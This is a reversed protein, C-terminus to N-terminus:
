QLPSAKSHDLNKATTMLEKLQWPLVEVADGGNGELYKEARGEHITGCNAVTIVTV